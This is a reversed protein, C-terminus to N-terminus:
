ASRDGRSESAVRAVEPAVEASFRELTRLSSPAIMIHTVGLEVLPRLQAIAEAPTPGLPRPPIDPSALPDEAVSNAADDPFDVDAGATLWLSAPDRGVEGCARMLEDYVPQYRVLPVDWSWGDAFKAAARLAKPGQAAVLIPPMPDPRPMCHANEVRYHVGQFTAPAETWLLRIIQLAEALQAVRAGPSPWGYGYARAEAEHWGAGLGLIFRGGTLAQLTAGMKALLAPNRYGQGLVLHGVKLHPFLAALYTLQTWGELIPEAGFQFHDGVWLTTFEPSLAAVMRRCFGLVDGDDALEPPFSFLQLGFTVAVRDEEGSSRNAASNSSRVGSHAPQSVWRRRGWQQAEGFGAAESSARM